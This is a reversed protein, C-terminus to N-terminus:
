SSFENRKKLLSSHHTEPKYASLVVIKPKWGSWLKNFPGSEKKIWLELDKKLEEQDYGLSIVDPRYKKVVDYTGIEADGIVVEDVGDEAQLAAIRDALNVSPLRGKLYEVIHDQAIAAILYGGHKKAERFFAKHGDHVGDFVGFVLVKKM